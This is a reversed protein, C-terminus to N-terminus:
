CLLTEEMGSSHKVKLMGVVLLLVALLLAVTLLKHSLLILM